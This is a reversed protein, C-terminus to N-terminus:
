IGRNNIQQSGPAQKKIECVAHNKHYTGDCTNGGDSLETLANCDSGAMQFCAPDAGRIDPSISGATIAGSIFTTDSGDTWAYQSNVLRLGTRCARGGTCGTSSLGTKCVQEACQRELANSYSVLHGVWGVPAQAVCAAEHGDQSNGSGDYKHCRQTGDCGTWGSPCAFASTPSSTPAEITYQVM